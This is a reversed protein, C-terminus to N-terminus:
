LAHENADMWQNLSARRVLRRRGLAISPLPPLGHVKGLIINHVHAKSCRLEAAVEPVTLVHAGNGDGPSPADPHRADGIQDQRTSSSPHPMETVETPDSEPEPRNFQLEDDCWAAAPRVPSAGGTADRRLPV